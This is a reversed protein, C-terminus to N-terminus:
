LSSYLSQTANLIKKRSFFLQWRSGGVQQWLIAARIGALLTARIRNQIDPRSLLDQRGFVQIRSGLPSILDSYISAMNAIMQEHLIDNDYLSLQRELQLLRQALESKTQPNKDLKQSLALIGVWYRGIETDLKGQKGGFQAIVTEFGLKLHKLDNDFVAVTSDPQLVLLSKLSQALSERDASGQHAFNQVLSAAQCVGALAISIDSYNAM